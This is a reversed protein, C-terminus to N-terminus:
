DDKDNDGLYIFIIVILLYWWNSAFLNACCDFYRIPEKTFDWMPKIYFGKRSVFFTVTVDETFTVFLFLLVCMLGFEEAPFMKSFLDDKAITTELTPHAFAYFFVMTLTMATQGVSELCMNISVLEAVRLNFMPLEAGFFTYSKFIRIVPNKGLWQHVTLPEDRTQAVIIIRRLTRMQFAFLILDMAVFIIFDRVNQCQAVGMASLMQGDQLFHFSWTVFISFPKDALCRTFLVGINRLFMKSVTISIPAIYSFSSNPLIMNNIVLAGAWSNCYTGLCLSYIFLLIFGEKDLGFHDRVWYFYIVVLISSVVALLDILVGMWYSINPVLTFVILRTLLMTAATGFFHAIWITINYCRSEQDDLNMAVKFLFSIPIGLLISNLVLSTTTAKPHGLPPVFAGLVPSSEAFANPVLLWVFNSASTLMIAKVSSYEPKDSKRNENRVRNLMVDWEKLYKPNKWKARRLTARFFSLKSRNSKESPKNEVEAEEEAAKDREEASLGDEDDVVDKKPAPKPAEEVKKLHRRKPTDGGALIWWDCLLYPVGVGVCDSNNCAGEGVGIVGLVAILVLTLVESWVLIVPLLFEDPNLRACSCDVGYAVWMM